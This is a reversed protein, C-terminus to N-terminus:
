LDAGRTRGLRCREAVRGRAGAGEDSVPVRHEYDFVGREPQRAVRFKHGAATAIFHVSRNIVELRIQTGSYVQM